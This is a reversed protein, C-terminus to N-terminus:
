LCKGWPDTSVCVAVEQLMNHLVHLDGCRSGLGQASTVDLWVLGHPVSWLVRGANVHETVKGQGGQQGQRSSPSACRASAAAAAAATCACGGLEGPAACVESGAARGGEGEAHAAFCAGSWIAESFLFRIKEARCSRPPRAKRQVCKRAKHQMCSLVFELPSSSVVAHRACAHKHSNCAQLGKRGAHDGDQVILTMFSDVSMSPMDHHQPATLNLHLMGGGSEKERFDNEGLLSQRTSGAEESAGVPSNLTSALEKVGPALRQKCGVKAAAPLLACHCSRSQSSHGHM